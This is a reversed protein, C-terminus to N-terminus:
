ELAWVQNIVVVFCESNLTAGRTAVHRPAVLFELEDKTEILVDVVEVGGNFESGTPRKWRHQDSDICQRCEAPLHKCEM